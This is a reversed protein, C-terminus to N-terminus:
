FLGDSAERDAHHEPDDKSHHQSAILEKSVNQAGVDLREIRDWTDREAGNEHDRQAQSPLGLHRQRGDQDEENHKEVGKLPHALDIAVQQGVCADQPRALSM